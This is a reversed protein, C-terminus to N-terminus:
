TDNTLDKSQNEVWNKIFDAVEEYRLSSYLVEFYHENKEIGFDYGTLLSLYNKENACSFQPITIYVRHKKYKFFFEYKEGFNYDYVDDIKFDKNSHLFKTTIDNIIMKYLDQEEKTRKEKPQHFIQFFKSYMQDSLGSFMGFYSNIDTQIYSIIDNQILTKEYELREVLANKEKLFDQKQQLNSLTAQRALEQKAEYSLGPTNYIQALDIKM